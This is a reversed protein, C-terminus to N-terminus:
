RAGRQYGPSNRYDFLKSQALDFAKIPDANEGYFTKGDEARIAALFAGSHKVTISPYCVDAWIERMKLELTM